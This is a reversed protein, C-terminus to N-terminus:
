KEAEKSGELLWGETVVKGILRKGGGVGGGSKGFWCVNGAVVAEPVAGWECVENHPHPAPCFQRSSCNQPPPAHRPKENLKASFHHHAVLACTVRIDLRSQIPSQIHLQIARSGCPSLLQDTCSRAANGALSLTDMLGSRGGSVRPHRM